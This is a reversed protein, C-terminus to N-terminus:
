DVRGIFDGFDIGCVFHRHSACVRLHSRNIYLTFAMLVNRVDWRSVLFGFVLSGIQASTLRLETKISKATFAVALVDFGDLMNLLVVLAIVLWQTSSM